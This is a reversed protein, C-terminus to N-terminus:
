TTASPSRRCARIRGGGGRGRGRPGAGGSVFGIPDRGSMTYADTHCVGTAALRVLCEGAKPGALEIEDVELPRGPEWCIAAQVKM